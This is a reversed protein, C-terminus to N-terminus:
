SIRQILFCTSVKEVEIDKGDRTKEAERLLNAYKIRLDEAEAHLEAAQFVCFLNFGTAGKMLLHEHSTLRVVHDNM